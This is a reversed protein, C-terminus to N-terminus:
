DSRRHGYCRERMEEFAATIDAELEESTHQATHSHVQTLLRELRDCWEANTGTKEQEEISRLRQYEAFSLVVVVPQGNQKLIIPTSLDAVIAGYAVQAESLRKESM